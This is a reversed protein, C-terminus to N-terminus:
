FLRGGGAVIAAVIWWAGLIFDAIALWMWRKAGRRKVQVLAILGLAIGGLAILSWPGGNQWFLGPFASIIFGVLALVQIKKNSDNTPRDM